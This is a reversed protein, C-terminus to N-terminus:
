EKHRSRIEREAAETLVRTCWGEITEQEEYPQDKAALVIKKRLSEPIKITFKVKPEEDTAKTSM